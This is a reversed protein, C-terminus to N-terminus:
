NGLFLIWFFLRLIWIPIRVELLLLNSMLVRIELVDKEPRKPGKRPQRM